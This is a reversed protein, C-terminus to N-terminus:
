FYFVSFTSGVEAFQSSDRYLLSYTLRESPLAFLNVSSDRGPFAILLPQGWPLGPASTPRTETPLEGFAASETPSVRFAAIM